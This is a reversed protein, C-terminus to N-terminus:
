GHRSADFAAVVKKPAKRRWSEELLEAVHDRQAAALRVRVGSVKAGWRLEEIADPAEAVWGPVDEAAVFVHAHADDPPLTAFIKGRIRFSRMDFHPEETAEPLALALETVDDVTV